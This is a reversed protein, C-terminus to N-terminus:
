GLEINSKWVTHSLEGYMLDFGPERGLEEEDSPELVSAGVVADLSGDLLAAKVAASDAYRKIHLEDFQPAGGWYNTNAAFVVLDDHDANDANATRSEFMFPGTGAIATAGACTVDTLWENWGM